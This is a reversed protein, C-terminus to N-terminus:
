INLKERLQAEWKKVKDKDMPEVGQLKYKIGLTDYKNTGLVHYPLLEIKGINKIPKLFNYLKEMHEEGDTIGPVVVHRIWLPTELKQAILLFKNFEDMNKLTLEKYNKEDIHKIDLLVLDVYPLIEEYHGVGVGATDIVTNIGNEKCLKLCEKLFEWQLLPEGGSFTVGGGSTSFYSKYRLIRKVLEEPTYEVGGKFSWTDPNHCYACRLNCGQMFVVFRIGPGDVLGMSEFSHIRGVTM